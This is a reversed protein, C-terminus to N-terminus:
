IAKINEIVFWEKHRRRKLTLMKAYVCQFVVAANMWCLYKYPFFNISFYYIRVCVYKDNKVCFNCM